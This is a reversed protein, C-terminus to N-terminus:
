WAEDSTALEIDRLWLREDNFIAIIHKLLLMM